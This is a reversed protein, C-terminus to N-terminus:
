VGGLSTAEPLESDSQHDCSSICSRSRHRAQQLRDELASAKSCSRKRQETAHLLRAEAEKKEKVFDVPQPKEVGERSVLWRNLKALTAMKKEEVTLNMERERADLHLRKLGGSRRGGRRTRAEDEKM